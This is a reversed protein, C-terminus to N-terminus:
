GVVIELQWRLMARSTLESGSDSVISTPRRRMEM